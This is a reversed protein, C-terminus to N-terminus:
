YIISSSENWFLGPERFYYEAKISSLIPLKFCLTGGQDPTSMIYKFNYSLIDISRHGLPQLLHNRFGNFECPNRPNSDGGRRFYNYNVIFQPIRFPANRFYNWPALRSLIFGTCPHVPSRASPPPLLLCSTQSQFGSPACPQSFDAQM